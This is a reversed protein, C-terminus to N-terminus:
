QRKKKITLVGAAAASLFMMVAGPVASFDDGTAVAKGDDKQAGKDPEDKQGDEKLVLAKEAQDFADLAARFEAESVHDLDALMDKLAQYADLYAKATEETYKATDELVIGNVTELAYDKDVKKELAKVARDIADVANQVQESTADTYLAEAKAIENMLANYGDELYADKDSFEAKVGEVRSRLGGIWVLGNKADTLDALAQEAETSSMEDLRSELSDALAKAASYSTETYDDAALERIEKILARLAATDVDGEMELADRANILAEVAKSVTESTGNEMAAKGAEYAETYNKWSAETYLSPDKSDYEAILAPLEEVSVLGALATELDAAAARFVDPAQPENENAAFVAELAEYADKLAQYSAETYLKEPETVSDMFAKADEALLGAEERATPNYVLADAAANIADVLETVMAESINEPDALANEAASVAKQYARWTSATYDASETLAGDVAKQVKEADGKLAKAAVANELAQVASDVTGQSVAANDRLSEATQYAQEYAAATDKTWQATDEKNDLLLNLEDKDVQVYAKAGATLEVINPTVGEWEIKVDLICTDEPMIYENITQSLTGAETWKEPEALTRVSVKADSLVSSNQIIKVSNAQTTDDSLHYILSGTDEAPIFMTSLDSDSMYGYKGDPTDSVSSEYTPDNVTPIYEGDNIELENIKLWHSDNKTVELKIYRAQKGIEEATKTNWSVDHVPLSATITDEEGEARGIELVPEWIENDTSVSITMYRPYDGDSDGCVIRLTDLTIERGLDYVTYRGANQYDGFWVFTTRDGDFMALPDNGAGYYSGLTNEVASKDYYEVTKVSLESIDATVSADTLNIVRIYRANKEEQSGTEAEEWERGNASIQLTLKDSTVDAAISDLEHIRDLKLGIYGDKELTVGPAPVLAASDALYDAPLSSYEPVNTYATGNHVVKAEVQFERIGFWNEQYANNKLRVYQATINQDSLDIDIARQGKYTGIKEWQSGDVSYELDANQMYDSHSDDPAQLIHIRGLTIPQSLKVGFYDGAIMSDKHETDNQRVNYHVATSDNGDIAAADNGSYVSWGETTRFVESTFEPVGTDPELALTFERMAPWKPNTDSEAKAVTCIYRVATVDDIKIDKVNVTEPYGTYEANEVVDHWDTGNTTYQLKATYFTDQGKGASESGNLIDVGYITAPVSLNVQFYQGEAAYDGYWASTGSNGDIINGIEGSYFSTFSSSATLELTGEGGMAYDNIEDGITEQITEALPILYTSGPSVKTTGDRTPKSHNQSATFSAQGQTYQEFAEAMEGNEMAIAAATFTKISVALDRLSDTFPKIEDKLNENRSNAHFGDCASIIVDMEDMLRSGADALSAGSELANTFETILPQLEESEALVLGHNNPQPNSMHKALTHLEEPADADIYKFSDAWSKDDDFAKVNWAYDAVAFLATKSAEAEQMPNTVVGKVDEINIDTHLLSGKGMLLRGHNIDNVPWNLWFLPARREGDEARYDRFHDRTAQEVPQCVAEGTWFIQVAEPFGADYTNLESYDGQWAHNYGAPCFVPDLVDGKEKGWEVVANMVTIVIDKDLSGVDDGLVGFQRVGASYLQEFKNLLAKTEGEVDGTNFGGMFPHATWVFRCKSAEGAVVMEKIGELDEAPYLERWKSTHYPDDKPAFVYATMKFEGGFEMLSIRDENSWPIGYYGEIFGRTQTDAYDKLEFCRITSGDMQSFIHKLSTLGYFAADTDKGLVCIEDKSSRVYHGGYHSFLEEEPSYTEEIYSGAYEGSDYIGVLINTANEAKEASVSVEKGKSALMEELRNKTANDIASDYVVNVKGRIIWDEGEGYNMEHPVPYIEYAVEEEAAEARTGPIFGLSGATMVFALLVALLRKGTRKETKKM